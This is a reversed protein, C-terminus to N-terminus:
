LIVAHIGTYCLKRRLNELDVAEITFTFNNHSISGRITKYSKSM